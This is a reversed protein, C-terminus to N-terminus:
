LIKKGAKHCKRLLSEPLAEFSTNIKWKYICCAGEGLSIQHGPCQKEVTKRRHLWNPFAKV